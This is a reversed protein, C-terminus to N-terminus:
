AEDNELNLSQPVSKSVVSYAWSDAQQESLLRAGVKNLDNRAREYADHRKLFTRASEEDAKIPPLLVVGVPLDSDRRHIDRIAVAANRAHQFAAERDNIEFSVGYSGVFINGDRSIGIDFEHEFTEGSVPIHRHVLRPGKVGLKESLAAKFPDELARIAFNKDRLKRPERLREKLYRSGVRSILADASLTSGVPPTIQVSNKWCDAMQKIEDLTLTWPRPLGPITSEPDIANKVQQSFDKLFAVDKRAFCEVRRWDELFRVKVTEGEMVLLGINIREDALADPLYQIISYKAGM